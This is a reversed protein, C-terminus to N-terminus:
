MLVSHEVACIGWVNKEEDAKLAGQNIAKDLYMHKSCAHITVIGVGGYLFISRLSTDPYGINLFFHQINQIESSKPRPLGSCAFMALLM